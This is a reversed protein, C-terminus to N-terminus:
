KMYGAERYYRAAGPHLPVEDNQWVTRPNYSYPRVYWKLNGRQEDIAKAIDYAAQEPTDERCFISEGSRAITKIPRDIGRLFGWKVTVRHVTVESEKELNTLLEEPLQLFLLEHAESLSTWQSSEPNMSSSGMQDIIIDFATGSTAGMSRGLSGGLAEIAKRDLGYYGLVETAGGGALIKVSLKKEKIQSLDTIGSEKKVAVLLYTPDEIKAILRLNKYPGGRAYGGSGRYATTLMGSATVGFDVGADVRTTTGTLADIADLAPPKGNTSVIRPGRDRNCNRCLIVEYGYPGLTEKVFDGLEGWPCAHPCASAFVPRKVAFGTQGVDMTGPMKEDAAFLFATNFTLFLLTLGCVARTKM